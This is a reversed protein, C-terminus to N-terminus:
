TTIYKLRYLCHRIQAQIEDLIGELFPESFQGRMSENFRYLSEFYDIPSAIITTTGQISLNIEDYLSAYSEVFRDLIDGIEDYFIELAKHRALTKDRNALHTFKAALQARFCAEAVRQCAPRDTSSSSVEIGDELLFDQLTKKKTM